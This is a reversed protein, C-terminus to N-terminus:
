LNGSLTLILVLLLVLVMIAVFAFISGNALLAALNMRKLDQYQGNTNLEKLKKHTKITKFFYITGSIFGVGYLASLILSVVGWFVNDAVEKTLEERYPDYCPDHLTAHENQKLRSTMYDEDASHNKPDPQITDKKAAVFDRKYEEGIADLDIQIPDNDLSVSENALPDSSQDIRGDLRSVGQNSEQQANTNSYDGWYGHTYKRQQFGCSNLIVVIVAFLITNKM